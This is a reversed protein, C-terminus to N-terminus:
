DAPLPCVERIFAVAAQHRDVDVSGFLDSTDLEMCNPNVAGTECFGNGSVLAKVAHEVVSVGTVKRLDVKAYLAKGMRVVDRPGELTIEYGCDDIATVTFRIHYKHGATDADGEFTAPSDATEKWSMTTKGRLLSAGDALGLFAYAVAEEATQARAPAAALLTLLAAVLVNFKM